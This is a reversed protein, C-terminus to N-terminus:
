QISYTLYYKKNYSSIERKKPMYITNRVKPILLLIIISILFRLYIININKICIKCDITVQYNFFNLKFCKM